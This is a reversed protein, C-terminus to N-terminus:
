KRYHLVLNAEIRCMGNTVASPVGSGVGRTRLVTYTLHLVRLMGYQCSNLKCSPAVSRGPIKLFFLLSSSLKWSNMEQKSETGEARASLFLTKKRPLLQYWGTQQRCPLAKPEAETNARM